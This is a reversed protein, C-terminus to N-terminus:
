DAPLENPPAPLPTGSLNWYGAPDSFTGYCSLEWGNYGEVEAPKLLKYICIMPNEKTGYVRTVGNKDQCVIIMKRGTMQRLSVEVDRRDKPILQTIKYMFSTGAGTEQTDSELKISDDTGYIYNWSAGEHLVISAYLTSKNFTFTLVDEVFAFHFPKM